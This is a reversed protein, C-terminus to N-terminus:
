AKSMETLIRSVESFSYPKAIYKRRVGDVFGPAKSALGSTLLVPLNPRLSTLWRALMYGTPGGPLRFDVFAIDVKVGSNIVQMAEVANYTEIVAWGTERLHEALPWRVCVEDEVVLVVPLLKGGDSSPSERDSSLSEAVAV